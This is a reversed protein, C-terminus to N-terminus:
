GGGGTETAAAILPRPKNFFNSWEAKSQKGLNSFTEEKRLKFVCICLSPTIGRVPWFRGYFEGTADGERGGETWNAM